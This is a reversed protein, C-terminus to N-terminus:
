HYVVIQRQIKSGMICFMKIMLRRTKILETLYYKQFIVSPQRDAAPDGLIACICLVQHLTPSHYPIGGLQASNPPNAIPARTQKATAVYPSHLIDALVHKYESQAQNQNSTSESYKLPQAEGAM